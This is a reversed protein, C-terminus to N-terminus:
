CYHHHHGPAEANGNADHANASRSCLLVAPWAPKATPVGGGSEFDCRYTKQNPHKAAASKNIGVPGAILDERAEELLPHERGHPTTELLHVMEADATVFLDDGDYDGGGLVTIGGDQRSLTLAICALHYSKFKYQRDICM